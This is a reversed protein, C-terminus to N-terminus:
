RSRKELGDIRHRVSSTGHNIAHCKELGDIRHRVRAILTRSWKANELGDIRHRVVLQVQWFERHM